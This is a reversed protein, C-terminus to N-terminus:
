ALVGGLFIHRQTSGCMCTPEDGPGGLKEITKQTYCQFAAMPVFSVYNGTYYTCWKHWNHFIMIHSVKTLNKIQCIIFVRWNLSLAHVGIASLM